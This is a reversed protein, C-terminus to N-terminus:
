NNMTNPLWTALGPVMMLIILIILDTIVFWFVGKFSETTKVGAAGSAVFVNMGVPPTVLGVEAAKTIIIGFWIPNFGLAMVIPFTIPVMLILIAMQDLFFGLILFVFVIISIIFYKSVNLNEVYSVLNQTVGTITLFYGFIMAGIIITLIMTTSKLTQLLVENCSDFSFRRMGIAILLVIFAGVAGAETPTVIGTYIAGIVIFILLLVPWTYKISDFRARLSPKESIKPAVDPKLKIWILITALYGVVTLIGPIIGAILLSAVGVESLIGYMILIISPPIMVALTGSISVVGMAFPTSYKYRKMEPFAASAMTAASATSSGSTAGMGAGAFITAIGLGGPLDGLWKHASFFLDKTLGSVTMIAAMLIFMPIASLVFSEISDYPATQIIGFFAEWGENLVLGISGSIGLALAIPMGFLLFFILLIIPIAITM